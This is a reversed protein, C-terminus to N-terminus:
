LARHPFLHQRATIKRAVRRMQAEFFEDTIHGLYKLAAMM